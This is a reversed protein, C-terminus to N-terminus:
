DGGVLRVGHRIWEHWGHESRAKRNRNRWHRNVDLDNARPTKRTASVITEAAATSRVISTQYPLYYEVAEPAPRNHGGERSVIMSMGGAPSSPNSLRSPDAANVVLGFRAYRLFLLNRQQRLVADEATRDSECSLHFHLVMGRAAALDAIEVWDADDGVTVIAHVGKVTFWMDGASLGPGFLDTRRTALQAYRTKVVGDAGIVYACNQRVGDNYAPAGVIVCIENEKAAARIQRLADELVSAGAAAIDESRAGTVALEPFAVVDAGQQAANGIHHLIRKTNDRVRSSCAMQAAAITLSRQASALPAIDPAPPTTGQELLEKGVQWFDRMVAHNWRRNAEARTALGTDIQEVIMVDRQHIRHAQISGDPRIVASGGGWPGSSLHRLEVAGCPRNPAGQLCRPTVPLKVGPFPGGSRLDPAPM